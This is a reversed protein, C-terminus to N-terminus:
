RGLVDIQYRQVPPAEVGTVIQWFPESGPTDPAWVQFQGDSREAYEDLTPGGVFVTRHILLLDDSAYEAEAAVGMMADALRGFLAEDHMLLLDADHWVYFRFKCAPRGRFTERSRLLSTV